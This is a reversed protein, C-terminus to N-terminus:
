HRPQRALWSLVEEMFIASDKGWYLDMSNDDAVAALRRGKPSGLFLSAMGEALVVIRGGGELKKWAAYPQAPKGGKDLQFAFPTGGDVSRGGDYPLERDFRNIEGAKAIAGPNPIYPTDPTLRMGFSGLFDNVGTTALSQRKEEDMVLLLSGGDKIFTVIAEKEAKSFAKSPARLYLLDGIQLTAGSIPVEVNVLELSLKRAFGVLPDPPSFEGHFRDFYLRSAAIPQEQGIAAGIVLPLIACLMAKNMEDADNWIWQRGRL